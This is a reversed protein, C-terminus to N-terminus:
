ELPGGSGRGCNTNMSSVKTRAHAAARDAGGGTQEVRPVAELGNEDHPPAEQDPRRIRAAALRATPWSRSPYLRGNGHPLPYRRDGRATRDALAQARLGRRDVGSSRLSGSAPHRTKTRKRLVARDGRPGRRIRNRYSNPPDNEEGHCPRRISATTNPM